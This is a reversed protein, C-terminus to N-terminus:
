FFYDGVMEWLYDKWREPFAERMEPSASFDV